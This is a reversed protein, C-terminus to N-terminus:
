GVMETEENMLEEFERYLQDTEDQIEKDRSGLIKIREYNKEECAKQLEKANTHRKTEFQSLEKEIQKQRSQIKRLRKQDEKRKLYQEKNDSDKRAFQFVGEDEEESWGGSVLFDTYTEERVTVKGEDFVVLRNALRSIMDEDHSVFVVAGKYEQLAKILAQCSEMDLHNTPEDLFIVHSSFLIVKGLCVRSKEGGSLKSIEKKAADGTFLLSGCLNRLEQEKVGPLRRLEELITNSENLEEKSEAGFYGVRLEPYQKLKGNKAELRGSLLRLLTSKGKGNRGIVGIRDGQNISLSFDEILLKGPEYGFQLNHAKLLVNGSFVKCHFHFAIEPIKELKDGLDQKELSKIRSQVLGASRAGARFNRIFEETKKNKKEQNQRTKEYIEEDMHIQDMVKQPGGVMKRMKGRHVAIVHTVVNEMFQRDHTVLIFAGKWDRLFRSLWRLTLIDLYNTPEDLLLLHPEAVLAEALRIRIQFGSSFDKPSKDFDAETFGLGTLITKAKWDQDQLSAPLASCVQGLLTGHEFDLHQELASVVLTQPMEIGDDRDQIMKLFTSKGSGNRGILGIKEKEGIRLNVDIFLEQKGYSKSLHSVRIM